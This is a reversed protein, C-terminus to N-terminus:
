RSPPQEEDVASDHGFLTLTELAIKFHVEARRLHLGHADCVPCGHEDFLLDDFSAAAGDDIYVGIAFLSSDLEVFDKFGFNSENYAARDRRGIM